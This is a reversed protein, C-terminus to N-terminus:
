GAFLSAIELREAAAERRRVRGAGSIQQTVAPDGLYEVRGAGPIGVSLTKEVRVVVNGAGSVAVRADESVLDAARYDGAGSIAVRQETARGALQAKMAGSGTLSLLKTDLDAIKLSTAGSASVRLRDTKLRGAQVKVAGAASIGDLERYTITVRAPRASGGLLESWWRRSAGGGIALTGDVVETRVRPLQRSPAEVTVSETAGQVLTADVLGEIAIRTFPALARQETAVEGRAGPFSWALFVWALGAALAVALLILLVPVVRPM